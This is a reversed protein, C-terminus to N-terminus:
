EGHPSLKQGNTDADYKAAKAALRDYFRQKIQKVTGPPFEHSIVHLIKGHAKEYTRIQNTVKDDMIEEDLETNQNM